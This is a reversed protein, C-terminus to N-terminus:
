QACLRSGPLLVVHHGAFLNSNGIQVLSPTLTDAFSVGTAAVLGTPSAAIGELLNREKDGFYTAFCLRKLQPDFAAVFGDGNGGGYRSQSGNRTLLDDSYTTGVFWVNGDRDVKVNGGDYGSEDDSAGGFYTTRIRRGHRLQFSAVFGDKKGHNAPQYSLATGPLDVSDTIGAVVPNGRRDVAIGWGSDEASGGFTTSFTMKMAPLALRTLFADSTGRLSKQLPHIAPFDASNTVGVAYIGGNHDLAVGTLKEAKGGGFVLCSASREQAPRMRCLFVDDEASAKAHQRGKFDSSSTVGGLYVAGANDIDLGNGLEDGTGGILTSYLVEGSPGVEVLFADSKGRFDRQLADSTTPFDASKTSGTAYAHGRRDVSVRWAGDYSKGGIRTAFVLKGTRPNLRLVYADMEDPTSKAGRVEVPLRDQPSHCALYLDGNAGFAVDDCDALEFRHVQPLTASQGLMAVCLVVAVALGRLMRLWVQALLNTAAYCSTHISTEQLCHM